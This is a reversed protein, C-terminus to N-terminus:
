HGHFGPNGHRVAEVLQRMRPTPQWDHSALRQQLAARKFASRSIWCRGLAYASWMAQRWNTYYRHALCYSVGAVLTAMGTAVCLRTAALGVGALHEFSPAYKKWTPNGPNIQMLCIDRTRSRKSGDHVALKLGSEERMATLVAAGLEREPRKLKTWTPLLARQELEFAVAVTALREPDQEYQTPVEHALAALFMAATFASM